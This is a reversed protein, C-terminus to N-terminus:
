EDHRSGDRPKVISLKAGDFRERLVGEDLGEGHGWLTEIQLFREMVRDVWARLIQEVKVPDSESAVRDALEGPGNILVDRGEVVFRMGWARIYSVPALERRRESLELRRLEALAGEKVTQAQSYSWQGNAAHGNVPGTMEAVEVNVPSKRAAQQALLEAEFVIARDSKGMARKRQVLQISTGALAAIQAVTLKSKAPKMAAITLGRLAMVAGFAPAPLLFGKIRFRIFPNPHVSSQSIGFFAGAERM